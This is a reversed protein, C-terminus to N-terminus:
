VPYFASNTHFASCRAEVIWSDPDALAIDKLTHVLRSKGVGADGTLLISRGAGSSSESWLKALRKAEFERGVLPTLGVLGAVELRSRASSEALVRYIEIPRSIGKLM